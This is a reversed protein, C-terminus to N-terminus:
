VEIHLQNGCLPCVGSLQNKYKRKFNILKQETNKVQQELHLVREIKNHLKQVKQEEKKYEKISEILPVPDVASQVTHEAEQVSLVLRSLATCQRKLKDIETQRTILQKCQQINDSVDVARDVEQQKTSISQLQLQLETYQKSKSQYQRIKNVIIESQDSLSKYPEAQKLEDEIQLILEKNAKISATLARRKTNVLKMSDQALSLDALQSLKAVAEGSTSDDILFLKAHQPQISYESVNLAEQIDEPVKQKLAKYTTNNLQYTNDKKTRTHTISDLTVTCTSKGKQIFKNGNPKNELLFRVARIISSKGANSEGVIATITPALTLVSNSHAQFGKLHLQKPM